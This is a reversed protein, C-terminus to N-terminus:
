GGRAVDLRQVLAQIQSVQADTGSILLSNSEPHSRVVAAPGGGSAQRHSADQELFENVAAALQDASAHQLAIVRVDALRGAATGPTGALSEAPSDAPTSQCGSILLAGVALAPLAM